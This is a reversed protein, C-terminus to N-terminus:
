SPTPSAYDPPTKTTIPGQLGHVDRLWKFAMMKDDADALTLTIPSDLYGGAVMRPEPVPQQKMSRDEMTRFSSAMEIVGHENFFLVQQFHYSARIHQQTTLKPLTLTDTGAGQTDKTSTTM